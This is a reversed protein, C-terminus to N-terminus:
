IEIVEELTRQFCHQEVSFIFPSEDNMNLNVWNSVIIPWFTKKTKIKSSDGLAIDQLVKQPYQFNYRLESQISQDDVFFSDLQPFYM